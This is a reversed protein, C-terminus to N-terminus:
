KPLGNEDYLIEELSRQDLDPLVAVRDEIARMRRLRIQTGARESALEREVAQRIAETMDINRVRALDRILGVVEPNKINLGM